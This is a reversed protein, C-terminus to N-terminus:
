CMPHRRHQRGVLLLFLARGSLRLSLGSNVDKLVRETERTLPDGVGGGGWTNFYLIDGSKVEFRDCKSPLMETEGTARM